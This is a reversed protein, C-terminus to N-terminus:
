VPQSDAQRQMDEIRRLLAAAQEIDEAPTGYRIVEWVTARERMIRLNDAAMEHLVQLLSPGLVSYTAGQAPVEKHFGVVTWRGVRLERIDYGVFYDDHVTDSLGLEMILVIDPYQAAANDTMRQNRTDKFYPERTPDALRYVEWPACMIEVPLADFDAVLAEVIVFFEAPFDVGFVARVVEARSHGLAYLERAQAVVAELNTPVPIEGILPASSGYWGDDDHRALRTNSM